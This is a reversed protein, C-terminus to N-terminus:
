PVLALLPDSAPTSSPASFESLQSQQTPTLVRYMRILMMTRAVNRDREATWLREILQLTRADDFPGMALRRALQRRLERRERLLRRRLPLSQRYATDLQLVQARSLSMREQVATSLWWPQPKASVAVSQALLCFLIWSFM